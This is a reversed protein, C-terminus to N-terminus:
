VGRSGECSVNALKYHKKLPFMLEGENSLRIQKTVHPSRSKSHGPADMKFDIDSVYTLEEVLYEGSWGGGPACRYGM